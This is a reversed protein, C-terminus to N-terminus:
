FKFKYGVALIANFSSHFGAHYIRLEEDEIVGAVSNTDIDYEDYNDLLLYLSITNHRNLKYDAGIESRFRELYTLGYGNFEGKYYQRGKKTTYLDNSELTILPDNLTVRLECGVYPELHSFGKYKVKFSTKEALLNRVGQYPNMGAKTKHTMQVTEKVSFNWDYLKYTYSLSAAVRHKPTKEAYSYLMYQVGAKFNHPLRYELGVATKSTSFSSANDIFRLEEYVGLELNRSLRASLDFRARAGFDSEPVDEYNQTVAQAHVSSASAMLLATAFACLIYKKM